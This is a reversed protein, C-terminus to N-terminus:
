WNGSTGNRTSHRSYRCAYKALYIDLIEFQGFSISISNM